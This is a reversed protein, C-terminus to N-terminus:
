FSVGERSRLFRVAGACTSSNTFLRLLYTPGRIHVLSLHFCPFLSAAKKTSCPVSTNLPPSPPLYPSLVGEEWVGEGGNGRWEPGARSRGAETRKRQTVHTAARASSFFVSVPLFLFFRAPGCVLLAGSTNGQFPFFFLSFTTRMGRLEM